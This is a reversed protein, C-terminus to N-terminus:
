GHELDVLLYRTRGTLDRRVTGIWGKRRLWPAMTRIVRPSLELLVKRVGCLSSQELLEAAASPAKDSFDHHSRKPMLALKPEWQKVLPQISDKREDLYPPNSIILDWPRKLIKKHLLDSQVLSVSLGSALANKKALTLAFRSLDSGWLEWQPREQALSLSIAGSGVGVDLVLAREPLKLELAWDVLGETEPRPILVNKNVFLELDRFPARGVAYQLPWGLEVKKWAARFLRREQTPLIEHASLLLEARRKGTISQLVWLAQERKRNPIEALLFGITEPKVM